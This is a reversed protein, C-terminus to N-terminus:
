RPTTPKAPYYQAAPKLADSQSDIILAIRAAERAFPHDKCSAVIACSIRYRAEDLAALAQDLHRQTQPNLATM